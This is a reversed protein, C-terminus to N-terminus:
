LVECLNRRDRVQSGFAAMLDGICSFAASHRPILANILIMVPPSQSVDQECGQGVDQFGRRAEYVSPSHRVDDEDRRPHVAECSM